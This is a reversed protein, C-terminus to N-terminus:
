PDASLYMTEHSMVPKGELNFQGVIQEPSWDERLYAEVEAFDSQGYRRNRRSIRRRANTHEGAPGARYAGDYKSRNRAVERYITSRHRGLRRAIETMAVLQHRMAAIM